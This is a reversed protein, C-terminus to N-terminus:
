KHMEYLWMASQRVSLWPLTRSVQEEKKNHIMEKDASSDTPPKIM